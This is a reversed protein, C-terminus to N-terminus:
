GDISGPSEGMAMFKIAAVCKQLVTFGRKGRADYRMQFFEYRFM